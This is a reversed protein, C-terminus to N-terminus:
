QEAAVTLHAALFQQDKTVFAELLRALAPYIDSQLGVTQCKAVFESLWPTLAEDIFRSQEVLMDAKNNQTVAGAMHSLVALYIALHDEPEKFDKVLGLGAGALFQRMVEAMAGYLLGEANPDYASAYPMASERGSLLFAHAFDSALVVRAKAGFDKHLQAVADTYDQVEAALGNEALLEFFPSLQDGVLAQWQPETLEAQYQQSFWLYIYSRGASIETLTLETEPNLKKDKGQHTM